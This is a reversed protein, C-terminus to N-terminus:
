YGCEEHWMSIVQVYVEFACDWPNRWIESGTFRIVRYGSGTMDRDRKRDRAAQEKTREHFDHGDCEIVLTKTMDGMTVTFDARYDLIPFQTRIEWQEAPPPPRDPQRNLTPWAGYEILHFLFMAHLLEIEIPSGCITTADRCAHMLSEELRITAEEFLRDRPSKM